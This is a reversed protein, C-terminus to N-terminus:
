KKSRSNEIKENLVLWTRMEENSLVSLDTASLQTDIVERQIQRLLAVMDRLDKVTIAAGDSSAAMKALKASELEVVLMLNDTIRQGPDRGSETHRRALEAGREYATCRSSWDHLAALKTHEKPPAGRKAGADVWDFFAWYDADSEEPRKQWQERLIALAPMEAAAKM